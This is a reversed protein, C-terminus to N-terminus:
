VSKKRLYPQHERYTTINDPDFVKNSKELYGPSFEHYTAESLGLALPTHSAVIVQHERAAGRLISWLNYQSTLDLSRDPEDLLITLRGSAEGSGALMKQIYATGAGPGKHAKWVAGPPAKIGLVAELVTSMRFTTMQGSSGKAMTNGIGMDLFDYDFGGGLLGVTANPDCYLATAGDHDLAMAAELEEFAVGKGSVRWPILDRISTETIKQEGGQHCHLLQALMRLLTSKGSGNIGWLVNLGPSFEFKRPKALAEVKPLWEVHTKEPDRIEFSRIM